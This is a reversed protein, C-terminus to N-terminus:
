NITQIKYDDFKIDMFDSRIGAFAEDLFAPGGYSVGDDKVEAGLSWSVGGDLSVYVKLDVTGNAENKVETRVGLWEGQPILTPATFRDYSLNSRIFPKEVLTFYTGGIKKKIVVKGDMRLGGYYLNNADLYRTFLLVGSWADREPSTSLNTKSVNFRVEQRINQWRSRTILRFINQPHYGDDTDVNNANSYAVRWKSYKPLEGHLTEGIGAKLIFRAGSNLWFYPSSTKEMSDVEELIGDVAFRYHFPSRVLAAVSATNNVRPGTFTEYLIVRGKDTFFLGYVALLVVIILAVLWQRKFIIM